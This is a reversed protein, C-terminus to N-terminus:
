FQEPKIMVWVLMLLLGFAALLVLFEALTM